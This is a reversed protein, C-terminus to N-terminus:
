NFLSPLLVPLCRAALMIVGAIAVAVGVNDWGDRHRQAWAIAELKAPDLPQAQPAEILVHTAPARRQFPSRHPPLNSSLHGPRHYGDSGPWTVASSRRPSPNGQLTVPSNERPPHPQSSGAVRKPQPALSAEAPAPDDCRLAGEPALTTRRSQPFPVVNTRDREVAALARYFRASPELGSM